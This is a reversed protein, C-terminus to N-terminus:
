QARLVGPSAPAKADFPVTNSVASENGTQDYATLAAFAEVGQPIPSVNTPHPIDALLVGQPKTCPDVSCQYLRYGAIDSETNLDWVFETPPAALVPTALLLVFLLPLIYM